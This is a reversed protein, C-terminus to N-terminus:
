IIKRLFNFDVRLVVRLLYQDIFVQAQVSAQREQWM